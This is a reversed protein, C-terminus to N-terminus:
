QYNRLIVDSLKSVAKLRHNIKDHEQPTLEDYYKKYADVVFLARYPFGEIREDSPKSDIVGRVSEQVFETKKTQPDLFCLCTSLQAGRKHAPVKDLKKLTYKILEEDTAEHGPWRRSLVGPEGNLFDIEIGGDDAVTPLGTKEAYYKAKLLANEKFTKGTENPKGVNDFGSLDVLEWGQEALALFGQKLESLKGPNTTALLLKMEM